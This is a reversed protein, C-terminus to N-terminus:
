KTGRNEEVLDATLDVTPPKKCGCREILPNTPREKYRQLACLLPVACVVVILTTVDLTRPIGIKNTLATGIIPGLLAGVMGVTQTCSVLSGAVQKRDLGADRKLIRLGLLPQCPTILGAGIYKLILGVLFTALEPKAFPLLTPSPGLVIFAITWTVFGIVQLTTADALQGVTWGTVNASLIFFVSCGTVMGGIGFSSLHLHDRQSILALYPTVLPDYLEQGLWFVFFILFVPWMMPVKLIVSLDAARRNEKPQEGLCWAIVPLSIGQCVFFIAGFVFPGPFGAVSYLGGGIAPGLALGVQRCSQTLSIVKPLHKAPAMQWLISQSTPVNIGQFIGM